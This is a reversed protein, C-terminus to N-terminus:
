HAVADAYASVVAPDIRLSNLAAAQALWMAEKDASKYHTYGLLHLTGHIVLLCLADQEDAGSAPKAALEPAIVVDGLYPSGGAIEAPLASAPFSLVDTPADCQRHQANLTQVMGKDALLITLRGGRHQPHGNLVAQAAAVLRTEAIPFGQPNLLTIDASM